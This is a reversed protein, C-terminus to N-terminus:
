ALFGLPDALELEDVRDLAEQETDYYDIVGKTTTEGAHQGFFCLKSGQYVVLWHDGNCFCDSIGHEDTQINAM